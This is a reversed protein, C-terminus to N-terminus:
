QRRQTEASFDIIPALQVPPQYAYAPRGPADPLDMHPTVILQNALLLQSVLLLQHTV